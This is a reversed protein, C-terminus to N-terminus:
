ENLGELGEALEMWKKWSMNDSLELGFLVTKPKVGIAKALAAQSYVPDHRTTYYTIKQQVYHQLAEFDNRMQTVNPKTIM